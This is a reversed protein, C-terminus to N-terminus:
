SIYAPNAWNLDTSTMDPILQNTILTNINASLLSRFCAANSIDDSLSYGYM